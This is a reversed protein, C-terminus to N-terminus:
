KSPSASIATLRSIEANFLRRAEELHAEVISFLTPSIDEGDVTKPYSKFFDETLIHYRQQVLNMEYRTSCKKLSDCTANMRKKLAAKFKEVAAVKAKEHTETTKKREELSDKMGQYADKVERYAGQMESYAGQTESYSTQLKILENTQKENRERQGSLEGEMRSIRSRQEAKEEVYIGAGCGILLLFAIGAAFLYPLNRRKWAKRLRSVGGYRKLPDNRLCKRRIRAYRGGFLVSMLRGVSYIDSRVDSNRRERLEPAAYRATCGPTKLLFHADDDSLGFDILRLTDGNHSIIINDPKLDNHVIGKKHLYDMAELLQGFIKRRLPLSPHETMFEALSRGEIYEMLIGEKGDVFEGYLLTRVIHPSDLGKSLEYERRLIDRTGPRGSNYTKFFFYRGDHEIRYYSFLVGARILMANRGAHALMDPVKKDFIESESDM